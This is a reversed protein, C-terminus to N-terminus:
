RILCFPQGAPDLYVRFGGKESPQHGHRRAGLALM